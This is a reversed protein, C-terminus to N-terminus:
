PTSWEWAGSASLQVENRSIAAVLDDFTALAQKKTLGDIRVPLGVVPDRPDATVFWKSRFATHHLVLGLLSLVGPLVSFWQVWQVSPDETLDRLESGRPRCRVRFSQPGNGVVLDMNSKGPM